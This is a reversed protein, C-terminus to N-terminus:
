FLNYWGTLIYKDNSIPPNGRHTHTFSAPFFVATGKKAKIRKHQYLFETEGGEAVDNLYITWVIVRRCTNINAQEFHFQHYGGGIKTKQLKNDTSIFDINQLSIHKDFYVKILNTLCNNVENNLGLDTHSLFMQEDQRYFENAKEVYKTTDVISSNNFKNEAHEILIDCFEDSIANNIIEIFDNM